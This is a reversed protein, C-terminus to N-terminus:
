CALTKVKFKIIEPKNPQVMITKTKVNTALLKVDKSCKDENIKKMMKPKPGRRPQCDVPDQKTKKKNPRYDLTKNASTEERDYMKVRFQMPETAGHTAISLCYDSHSRISRPAVVVCRSQRVQCQIELVKTLVLVLICKEFINQSM